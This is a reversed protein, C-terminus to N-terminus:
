TYYLVIIYIVLRVSIIIGQGGSGVYELERIDQFPIEWESDHDDEKTCCDGCAEVDHLQRNKEDAPTNLRQINEKLQTEVKSPEYNNFSFHKLACLRRHSDQNNSLDSTAEDETSERPSPIVAAM